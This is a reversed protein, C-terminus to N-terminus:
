PVWNTAIKDPCNPFRHLMEWSTLNLSPLQQDRGGLVGKLDSFLEDSGRLM